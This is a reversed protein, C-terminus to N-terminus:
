GFISILLKQARNPLIYISYQMTASEQTWVYFNSTLSQNVYLSFYMSPSIELEPPAVKYLFGESWVTSAHYKLFVISILRKQKGNKLSSHAVLVNITSKFVKQIVLPGSKAGCPLHSWPHEVIFCGLPVLKTMPLFFM